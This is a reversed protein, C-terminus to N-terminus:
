DKKQPRPWGSINRQKGRAVALEGAEVDRTIVSGAGVTADKGITVPAVLSSNSGIFANDGIETRAKNVGDYNCTITGAGVNVGSGLATDGLYTLHNVKSGPGIRTKKTEVFNGVKSRPAMETGPRLRAFPGIQCADGIDAGEVISHAEIVTGAGIRSNRILCNPGVRVGTALSVDGELVTNVDLVVDEGCTVNGRIDLRAPDLVTVGARMLQEAQVQQYIRELRALQVRDNVGDVEWAFQPQAAEVTLGASVAMAIVDTLYYEGQANNSSLKPLADALFGRPCALIGTNIERIARQTDDADKFEVIAQVEGAANRVIRGYAGPDDMELTMLALRDPAVRGVFDRLTDPRILPVDGYLILVVDESVHPMAQAVAHGTGLQEAQEAWVADPAPVKERVLEGGHGYVVCIRRADLARASDIVHSLMPRGAIPHAVKPLQSRMRTGKGAALIVVALEM